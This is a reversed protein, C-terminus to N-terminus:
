EATATPRRAIPSISWVMKRIVTASLFDIGEGEAKAMGEFFTVVDAMTLGEENRLYYVNNGQFQVSMPRILAVQAKPQFLLMKRWSAESEEFAQVRNLVFNDMGLFHVTPNVQRLAYFCAQQVFRQLYLPNTRPGPPFINSETKPLLYKTRQSKRSTAIVQHWLYNVRQAALLDRMALNTLIMDLLEFTALAESTPSSSQAM